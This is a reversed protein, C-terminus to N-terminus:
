KVLELKRFPKQAPVLLKKQNKTGKLKLATIEAKLLGCYRGMEKFAETVGERFQSFEKFSVFEPAEPEVTTEIIEGPQDVKEPEDDELPDYIEPVPPDQVNSM